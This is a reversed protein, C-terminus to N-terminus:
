LGSENNLVKAQYKCQMLCVRLPRDVTLVLHRVDRIFFGVGCSFM